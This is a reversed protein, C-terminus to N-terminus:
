IHPLWNASSPYKQEITANFCSFVVLAISLGSIVLALLFVMFLYIESWEKEGQQPRTVLSILLNDFDKTLKWVLCGFAVALVSVVSLVFLLTNNRNIYMLLIVILCIPISLLAGLLVHSHRKDFFSHICLRLKQFRLEKNIHQCLILKNEPICVTPRVHYAPRFSVCIVSCLLLYSTYMSLVDMTHITDINQLRMCSIVIASICQMSGFFCSMCSKISFAGDLDPHSIYRENPLAMLYSPTEIKSVEHSWNRPVWVTPFNFGTSSDVHLLAEMLPNNGKLNDNGAAFGNTKEEDIDIGEDGDRRTIYYTAFSLLRIYKYSLGLSIGKILSCLSQAANSIIGIPCILLILLGYLYENNEPLTITYGGGKKRWYESVGLLVIGALNTIITTLLTSVNREYSVDM